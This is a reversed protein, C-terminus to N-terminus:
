KSKMERKHFPSRRYGVNERRQGLRRKLSIKTVDKLHRVDEFPNKILGARSVHLHCRERDGFFKESSNEEDLFLIKNTREVYDEIELGRIFSKDKPGEDSLGDFVTIQGVVM